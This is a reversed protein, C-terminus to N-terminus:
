SVQMCLVFKDFSTIQHIKRLAASTLPTSNALPACTYDSLDWCTVKDDYCAATSLFIACKTQHSFLGFAFLELKHM